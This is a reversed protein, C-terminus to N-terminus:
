SPLVHNFDYQRFSKLLEKVKDIIEPKEIYGCAGREKAATETDKAGHATVIIVRTKPCTERVRELVEWGNLEPMMLDTIVFDYFESKMTEVAKNGDEVVKVDYGEKSLAESLSWRILFEDDAVLVKNTLDIKGRSEDYAIAM